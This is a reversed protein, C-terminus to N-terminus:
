KVEKQLTFYITDSHFYGTYQRNAGKTGCDTLTNIQCVMLMFVAQRVFLSGINKTSVM